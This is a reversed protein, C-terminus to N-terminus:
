GVGVVRRVGGPMCACVIQFRDDPCQRGLFASPATTTTKARRGSGFSTNNNRARVAQGPDGASGVGKQVLEVAGGVVGGPWLFTQPTRTKISINFLLSLCLIEHQLQSSIHLLHHDLGTIGKLSVFARLTSTRKTIELNSSEYYACPTGYLLHKHTQAQCSLLPFRSCMCQCVVSEGRWEEGNEHSQSKKRKKRWPM